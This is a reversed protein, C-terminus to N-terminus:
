GASYSLNCIGASAFSTLKIANGDGTWDSISMGGAGLADAEGYRATLAAGLADCDAIDAPNFLVFHLKDESDFLLSAEGSIGEVAHDLKILPAYPAGAEEYIEAPEPAHSRAGDLVALAADPSMGWETGEWNAQAPAVALALIVLTAAGCRYPSQM